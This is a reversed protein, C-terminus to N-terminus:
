GFKISPSTQECTFDTGSLPESRKDGIMSYVNLTYETQPRLGELLLTTQSGDVLVQLVFLMSNAHLPPDGTIIANNSRVLIQPAVNADQAGRERSLTSNM